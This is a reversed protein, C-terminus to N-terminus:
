GPQGPTAGAKAWKAHWLAARAANAGCSGHVGGGPHASSSGLYLGKVPTEARGAGPIPRFILQQHLASTGGGLAGGVLSQDRRELEPPTLIRRARIRSTFGPAYREMRAQMRDAMRQADSDDWRGTITGGEDRRVHQPVHTYAWCSETGTPSRVPDSTTMQGVLLFPDAPLVSGTVQAMWVSVETVSDALHVTGPDADPRGTWPIPGSLAWDVKVTGPDWEFKEVARRTRRPLDQWDVLGGYLAPAPVDAIVARRVAIPEGAATVVGVVRGKEVTLRSVPTDCRIRGGGARFRAALAEALVGAGGQPVPFGVQQGLMALLLGFIGSGAADPSLDAHAANGVLLLQAAEHKLHAGALSRASQLLTRVAGVGGARPLAALLRAGGRVPPFPSLLSRILGPGLKTWQSYLDLWGQGDGASLRDLGAATRQPDRHVLAWDGERTPTGIVAPAHSWRLGYRDLQLGQIVPSAASLPYFSSFVDHVFGDAVESDSAVAGGVRPQAELLLVDWGADTLLNAAVLGNPGAGVVVADM